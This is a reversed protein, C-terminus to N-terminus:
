CVSSLHLFCPVYGKDDVCRFNALPLIVDKKNQFETAVSKPGHTLLYELLVLTKFSERRRKKDVASLRKNLVDMIRWYDDVEFAAQSIAAMKRTEPGWPDSNTVEEALLQANTVDTLLLRAAKIKERLFLSAQRKVVGLDIGGM